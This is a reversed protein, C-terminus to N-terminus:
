GIFVASIPYSLLLLWACTVTMTTSLARVWCSRLKSTTFHPMWKAKLTPLTALITTLSCNFCSPNRQVPTLFYKYFKITSHQQATSMSNPIPAKKEQVDKVEQVGKAEDQINQLEQIVQIEQADHFDQIEPQAEKPTEDEKPTEEKPMEEKPAEKSKSERM